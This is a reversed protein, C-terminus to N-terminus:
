RLESGSMIREGHRDHFAIIAPAGPFPAPEFASVVNARSFFSIARLVQSDKHTGLSRGPEVEM